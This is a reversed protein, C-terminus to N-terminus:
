VCVEVPRAAVRAGSGFMKSGSLAIVRIRAISWPVVEV